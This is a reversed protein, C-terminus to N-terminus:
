AYSPATRNQMEETRLGYVPGCYVENYALGLNLFYLPAIVIALVYEFTSSKGFSQAIEVLMKGLFYLNFVPIFFFWVHSAPRGVIRLLVVLDYIPVFAAVGPQDCKVFMRWKAIAGILLLLGGLFVQGAYNAWIHNATEIIDM